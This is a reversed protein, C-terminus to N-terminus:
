LTQNFEDLKKCEQLYKQDDAKYIKRIDCVEIWKDHYKAHLAPMVKSSMSDFM